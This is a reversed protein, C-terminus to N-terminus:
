VHTQTQVDDYKCEVNYTALEQFKDDLDKDQIADIFAGPNGYEADDLERGPLWDKAM